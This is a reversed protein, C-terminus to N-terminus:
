RRCDPFLRVGSNKISRLLDESDRYEFVHVNSRGQAVEQLMYPLDRRNRVLFVSPMRMSLAFGAEVLCSSLCKGPYVMMFNRSARIAQFDEEAGVAAPQFQSSDELDAGSFFIRQMGCSSKVQEIVNLMELRFTAYDGAPLSAMPAAMFVDYKSVDARNSSEAPVEALRAELDPWWREFTRMLQDAPLTRQRIANISELLKYTGERDAVVGQFQSLPFAVEAIGLQYCYPVVGGHEVSRSIAGAEFLMWPSGMNEPTLCMVAFNSRQLEESLKDAWRAGAKIDAESMWTEIGQFVDKLWASLERAILRSRTGSWSVFVKM